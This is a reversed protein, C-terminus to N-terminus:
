RVGLAARGHLDLAESNIRIMSVRQDGFFQHCLASRMISPQLESDQLILFENQRASRDERRYLVARGTVFLVPHDAQM